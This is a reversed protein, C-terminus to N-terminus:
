RTQINWMQNIDEINEYTLVYGDFSEIVLKHQQSDSHLDRHVANKEHIKSLSKALRKIIMYKQALSMSQFNKMLYHRLDNDYPYLVLMYDKSKPDRTLGYCTALYKSTNDLTFQSKVEQFWNGHNNASNKLRKLIVKQRGYRELSQTGGNWKYYRGTKWIATYITSCGGKVKYTVNQFKNYEIWEIIYNPRIANQQCEQILMDIEKNGSSWNRFDNELYNRICLECYQTAHCWGYCDRCPRKEDSKQIRITDYHRQLRILLGKKESYTLSSDNLFQQRIYEERQSREPYTSYDLYLFAKQWATNTKENYIIKSTPM